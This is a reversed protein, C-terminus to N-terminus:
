HSVSARLNREADECRHRQRGLPSQFSLALTAGNGTAEALQIPLLLQPIALQLPSQMALLLTLLLALLLTLALRLLLPLCVWQQTLRRSNPEGFVRLLLPGVECMISAPAPEHLPKGVQQPWLEAVRCDNRQLLCKTQHQRLLHQQLGLALLPSESAM